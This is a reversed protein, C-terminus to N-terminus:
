RIHWLNNTLRRDIDKITFNGGFKILQKHPHETISRLMDTLHTFAEQIQKPQRDFNGGYMRKSEHLGYRNVPSDVVSLYCYFIRCENEFTNSYNTPSPLTEYKFMEKIGYTHFTSSMIQITKNRYEGTHNIM